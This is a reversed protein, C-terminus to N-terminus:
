AVLINQLGKDSLTGLMLNLNRNVWGQILILFVSGLMGIFIPRSAM